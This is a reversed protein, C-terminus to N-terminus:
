LLMRIVRTRIVQLCFIDEPPLRRESVGLRSRDTGPGPRGAGTAASADGRSPRAAGSALAQEPDALSRPRMRGQQEGTRRMRRLNGPPAVADPKKNGGTSSPRGQAPPHEVSQGHPPPTLRPPQGAARGNRPRLPARAGATASARAGSAAPQRSATRGSATDTARAEGPKRPLPPLLRPPQNEPARDVTTTGRSSGPRNGAASSPSPRRNAPPAGVPATGAHLATAGPLRPPRRRGSEGTAAASERSAPSTRAGADPGGAARGPAIEPARCGHLPLRRVPSRVPRLRNNRRRWRGDAFRRSPSRAARRPATPRRKRPALPDSPGSRPWPVCTASRSRVDRNEVSIRAAAAPAVPAGRSQTIMALKAQFTPPAPPPATRAVVQALRRNGYAARRLWPGDSCRRAALRRDSRRSRDECAGAGGRGPQRGRPRARLIHHRRRGFRVHQSQRRDRLDPERLHRQHPPFARHARLGGGPCSPIGRDRASVLRRSRGRGGLVLRVLRTRRRRFRRSGAFLRGSRERPAQVPDLVVAVFGPGAATTTPRGAGRSARVGLDM